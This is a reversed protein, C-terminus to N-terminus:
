DGKAFVPFGSCSGCEVYGISHGDDDFVEKLYTVPEPQKDVMEKCPEWKEYDIGNFRLIKSHGSRSMMKETYIADAECNLLKINTIPYFDDPYESGIEFYFALYPVKHKIGLQVVSALTVLEEGESEELCFSIKM